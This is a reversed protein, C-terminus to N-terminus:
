RRRDDRDDRYRDGGGGGYGGGYGGGGYGDYGYGGGGYGGYPPPPPGGYGGGYGGGYAGGYGGGGYGGGGRPPPGGYGGGPPAGYRSSGPGGRAEETHRRVIGMFFGTRSRIRELDSTGYREICSVALDVPMDRLAHAVRSELDGKKLVGKDALAEFAKRVSRPLDDMVSFLDTSGETGVRRIIGPPLIPKDTLLTLRRM